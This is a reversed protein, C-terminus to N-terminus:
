RHCVNVPNCHPGFPSHSEISCICPFSVLTQSKEGCIKCVFFFWVFIQVRLFITVFDVCLHGVKDSINLRLRLQVTRVVDDQCHAAIKGVHVSVNIVFVQVLQDPLTVSPRARVIKLPWTDPIKRFGIEAALKRFDSDISLCRTEILPSFARDRQWFDNVSSSM